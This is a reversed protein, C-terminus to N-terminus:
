LQTFNYPPLAILIVMVVCFCIISREFVEKQKQAHSKLVCAEMIERVPQGPRGYNAKAKGGLVLCFKSRWQWFTTFGLFCLPISFLRFLSNVGGWMLLANMLFFSIWLGFAWRQRSRAELAGINSTSAFKLFRPFANTEMNNVVENVCETFIIVPSQNAAQDSLLQTRVGSTINLESPSEQLVYKDVLIKVEQRLFGDFIVRDFPLGLTNPATLKYEALRNIIERTYLESSEFTLAKYMKPHPLQDGIAMLATASTISARKSAARNAIVDNGVLKGYFEVLEISRTFDKLFDLNENDQTIERMYSTFEDMNLPFNTKGDLIMDLTM